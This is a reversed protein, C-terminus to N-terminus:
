AKIETITISSAMAGGYYRGGSAGNLTVTGATMPGARVAFSVPSTTGAVMRHRLVVCAVGLSTSAYNSAVAIANAGAGQFLAAIIDSVVSCSAFLVVDIQLINTASLPTISQSLFQTGETNQPITDDRPITTTGTAVAGTSSNVSQVVAGGAVKSGTVAGDALDATVVSGDPLIVAKTSLNLTQELLAAPVQQM